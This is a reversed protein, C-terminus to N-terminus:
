LWSLAETPTLIRRSDRHHEVLLRDGSVLISHPKEAQLSWLHSDGPDPASQQTSPEVWIANATVQTLLTDIDSVSLKHLRTIRPRALVRQYESLLAESLLFLFDGSIMGDLWRATPSEKNATILGAVLVNTDVIFLHM